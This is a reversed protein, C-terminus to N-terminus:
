LDGKWVGDPPLPGRWHRPGRMGAGEGGRHPEFRLIGRLVFVIGCGPDVRVAGAMLPGWQYDDGQILQTLVAVPGDEERWLIEACRSNHGIGYVNSAGLSSRAKVAVM